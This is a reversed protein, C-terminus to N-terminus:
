KGGATVKGKYTSSPLLMLPGLDDGDAADAVAARGQASILLMVVPTRAVDLRVAGNAGSQATAVPPTDPKGALARAVAAQRTERAFAQVTAGAIPKGDEDVITATVAAGARAASLLVLLLFSSVRLTRM